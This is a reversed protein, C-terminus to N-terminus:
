VIKVKLYYVPNILVHAFNIVICCTVLCSYVMIDRSVLVIDLSILEAILLSQTLLINYQNTKYYVGVVIIIFVRKWNGCTFCSYNCLTSLPVLTQDYWSMFVYAYPILDCKNVHLNFHSVLELFTEYCTNMFSLSIWRFLQVYVHM